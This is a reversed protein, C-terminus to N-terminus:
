VYLTNGRKNQMKHYGINNVLLCVKMNTLKELKYRKSGNPM